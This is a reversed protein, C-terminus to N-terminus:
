ISYDLLTFFDKLIVIGVSECGLDIVADSKIVRSVRYLQFPERPLTSVPKSLKNLNNDKTIELVTDSIRQCDKRKNERRPKRQYETDAM